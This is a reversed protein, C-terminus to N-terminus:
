SSSRAEPGAPTSTSSGPLSSPILVEPLVPAPRALRILAAEGARGEYKVKLHLAFQVVPELVVPNVVADFGDGDLANYVFTRGKRASQVTLRQRDIATGVQEAEAATYSDYM